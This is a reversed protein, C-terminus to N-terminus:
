RIYIVKTILNLNKWSRDATVVPLIKREGLALCFSDGLSISHNANTKIEAALKADQYNCPEVNNVMSAVVETAIELPMGGRHLVIIVESVNVPSMVAQELFSEAQENGKENKIIAILASSDFVYGNSM